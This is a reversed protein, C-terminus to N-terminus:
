VRGDLVEECTAVVCQTADPRALTRAANAWALARARDLTDLHAALTEATLTAQQEIVAAGAEVLVRANASQHDDVAHPYPVLIGGLGAAALESVTLAGARAIVFDACAYAGAMDDIFEGLEAQVGHAAYADRAADIQRGTQHRVVPRRGEPLRAIASPVLANLATAGLSGGLVLLRLPGDRGAFREAPSALMSIERRVPNGCIRVGCSRFAGAFAALRRSAFRELRRNTMGAIANQEHIVLPVGSLWAALGGPAAVYGGMGLVLKPRQRRLVGLANWVAGALRFPAVAWGLAGKGRLGTMPSWEVEFGAQPVVRSEIGRRTGFWVVRHGRERLAEACALAPFVHGGTGGAMIMVTM